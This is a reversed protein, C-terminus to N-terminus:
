INYLDNVYLTCILFYLRVFNRGDKQSVRYLPLQSLETYRRAVPKNGLVTLNERTAFSQPGGLRRELPYRLSKQPPLAAPAHLEASV